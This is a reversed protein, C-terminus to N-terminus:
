QPSKDPCVATYGYVVREIGCLDQMTGIGTFGYARLIERVAEAQHIGVEFALMGGAKLSNKWLATIKRYFYLGDAGGELAMKPEFSVEKQLQQMDEDTLYPPNSVIVDVDTFAVATQADLVDGARFHVPLKHYAANKQAYALATDSKEIGYVTDEELLSQLALAICGSGTCLDVLTAKKPLRGHQLVADVLTETDARPILVGEGVHIYLGYFEWGGLLYQLPYHEARRNAVDRASQADPMDELIWKAEMAANEIGGTQLTDTLERLLAADIVM